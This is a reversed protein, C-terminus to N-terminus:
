INVMGRHEATLRVYIRSGKDWQISLGFPTDIYVFEGVERVTFPSGPDPRVTQGRILQLKYYTPTGPVGVTIQISKSCTVGSTGCAVNETTIQFPTPSGAVSQVLVYDCAGQFQYERGDFTTYHSDGVASCTSPCDKQECQWRRSRCTSKLVFVHRNLKWVSVNKRELVFM